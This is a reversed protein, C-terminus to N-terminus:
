TGAARRVHRTAAVRARKLAAQAGPKDDVAGANAQKVEIMANEIAPAHAEAVKGARTLAGLDVTGAVVEHLVADAEAQEITGDAVLGQLRTRVQAVIPDNATLPVRDGKPPDPKACEAGAPSSKATSPAGGDGAAM